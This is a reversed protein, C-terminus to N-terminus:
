FVTLKVHDQLTSCGQSVELSQDFYALEKVYQGNNKSILGLNNLSQVELTPNKLKKALELAQESYEKAQADKLLVYTTGLNNLARAQRDENNSAILLALAKEFYAKAQKYDGHDSAIMGLNNLSAAENIKDGSKRSDLLAQEYDHQAESYNGHKYADLGSM